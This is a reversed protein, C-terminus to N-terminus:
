RQQLRGEERAGLVLVVVLAGLPLVPALVPVTLVLLGSLLAGTLLGLLLGPRILGARPRDPRALIVVLGTLTGTLYTTSVGKLGMQDAAAGQVGMAAAGLALLGFQLVGLPRGDTAFWGAAVGCELALELSLAVRVHPAWSPEEGTSGAAPGSHFWAIRTGAAVGAVYGGVACLAHLLLSVSGRAIALGALVINGTMVSAFVGGLRTFVAVDLAGSGFTLAIAIVTIVNHRNM